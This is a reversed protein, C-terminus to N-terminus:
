AIFYMMSIKIFNTFAMNAQNKKKKLQVTLSIYRISLPYFSPYEADKSFFIQM